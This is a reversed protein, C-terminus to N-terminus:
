RRLANRRKAAQRGRPSRAGLRRLEAEISATTGDLIRGGRADAFGALAHAAAGGLFWPTKGCADAYGDVLERAHSPPRPLVTVSLGVMDPALTDCARAIGSPPTRAGLLIPRVGLSAFSLAAGLLPLTHLEEAFCGLLVTPANEAIRTLRLLDLTTTSILHSALHEAAISISGDHWGQGIRVLAPQLVREFAVMGSDLLLARQLERELASTNMARTAEVIRLILTEFPDAETPVAVVEKTAALLQRAADNPAVGSEVMTQMRKVLKVDDRSYLRYDADTRQPTPFGYRREWARLTASAVGTLESVAQIRYSAVDNNMVPPCM